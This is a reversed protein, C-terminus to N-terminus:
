DMYEILKLRAALNFLNKEDVILATGSANEIKEMQMAQHATVKNGGYKTEIAVFKGNLCVIFDPIGQVGYGTQVPMFWWAGLSKLIKKVESKVDAENKM